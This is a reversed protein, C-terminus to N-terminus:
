KRLRKDHNLKRGREKHTQREEANGSAMGAVCFIVFPQKFLMKLPNNGRGASVSLFLVHIHTHYLSLNTTTISPFFSLSFIHTCYDMRTSKNPQNIPLSMCLSRRGTNIVSNIWCLRWIIIIMFYFPLAVFEKSNVGSLHKQQAM